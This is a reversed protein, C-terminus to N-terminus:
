LFAGRDFGRHPRDSFETLSHEFFTTARHLNDLGNNSNEFIIREEISTSTGDKILCSPM